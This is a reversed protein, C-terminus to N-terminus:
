YILNVLMLFFTVLVSHCVALDYCLLPGSMVRRSVGASNSDKEKTTASLLEKQSVNLLGAQFSFTFLLIVLVEYLKKTIM